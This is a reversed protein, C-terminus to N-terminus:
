ELHIYNAALFRPTCVAYFLLDVGGTNTIRQRTGSPIRVVDGQRVLVPDHDALEVEGVGAIILYREHTDAVKHWATTVGPEVRALAISLQEDGEDNAVETIHCREATYVEFQASARKIEPKM